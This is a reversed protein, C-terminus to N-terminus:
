LRHLTAASYPLLSLTSPQFPPSFTSFVSYFPLTDHPLCPFMLKLLLFYLRANEHRGNVARTIADM